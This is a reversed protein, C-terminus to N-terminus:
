LRSKERTVSERWQQQWDELEKEPFLRPTVEVLRLLEDFRQQSALFDLYSQSAAFDYPDLALSQRYALDAERMMRKRASETLTTQARWLYLDAIALRASALTVAPNLDAPRDGRPRRESQLIRPVDHELIEHHAPAGRGSQEDLFTRVDREVAHGDVATSLRHLHTVGGPQPHDM